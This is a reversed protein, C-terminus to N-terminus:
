STSVFSQKKYLLAHHMQQAWAGEKRGGEAEGRWGRQAFQSPM